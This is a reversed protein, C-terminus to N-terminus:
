VFMIESFKQIITNIQLIKKFFYAFFSSKSPLRCVDNNRSYRLLRLIKALMVIVLNSRALASAIVPIECSQFLIDWRLSGISKSILLM